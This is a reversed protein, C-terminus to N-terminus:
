VDHTRTVTVWRGRPPMSSWVVLSIGALVYGRLRGQSDPDGAGVDILPGFGTRNSPVMAADHFCDAALTTPVFPSSERLWVVRCPLGVM